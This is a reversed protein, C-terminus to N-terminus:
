SDILGLFSNMNNISPFHVTSSFPIENKSSRGGFAYRVGVMMTVRPVNPTVVTYRCFMIFEPGYCSILYVLSM